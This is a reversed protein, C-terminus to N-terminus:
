RGSGGSESADAPEYGACAEERVWPMRVGNGGNHSNKVCLRQLRSLHVMLLSFDGQPEVLWLEGLLWVGLREM